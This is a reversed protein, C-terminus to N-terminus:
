IRKYHKLDARVEVAAVIQSGWSRQRKLKGGCHEHCSASALASTVSGADCQCCAAISTISRGLDEAAWEISSEIAEHVHLKQYNM